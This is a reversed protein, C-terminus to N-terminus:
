RQSDTDYTIAIWLTVLMAPLMSGTALWTSATLLSLGLCYLAAYSVAGATFWLAARAHRSRRILLVASVLSAVVFLLLDALWFALITWPPADPPQFYARTGPFFILGVWWIAGAV